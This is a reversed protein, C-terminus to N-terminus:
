GAAYSTMGTPASKRTSSLPNSGIAMAPARPSTGTVDEIQNAANYAARYEAMAYGIGGTRVGDGFKCTALHTLAVSMM